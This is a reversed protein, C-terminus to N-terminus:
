LHKTEHSSQVLTSHPPPEPFISGKPKSQRYAAEKIAEPSAERLSLKRALAVDDHLKKEPEASAMNNGSPSDKSFDFRNNENVNGAAPKADFFVVGAILILALAAWALARRQAQSEPANSPFTHFAIM